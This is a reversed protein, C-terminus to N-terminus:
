SEERHDPRALPTSRRGWSPACRIATGTAPRYGPLARLATAAGHELTPGAPCAETTFTMRLTVVGEQAEIGYILGLDVISIGAEPDYVQRLADWADSILDAM